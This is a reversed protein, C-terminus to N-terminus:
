ATQAETFGEALGISMLGANNVVADIRSTEKLISSVGRQVSAEDQVDMSVVRIALRQEQAFRLLDDAANRNRGNRERMTAYVTHGVRALTEATLRGIGSSTGTIMVVAMSDRRAKEPGPLIDCTEVRHRRRGARVASLRCALVRAPVAPRVPHLPSDSDAWFSPPLIATYPPASCDILRRTRSITSHDPTREDLGIQLFQRFGLSHAARWAIGRESDIGEFYGILLARFYAGPTLSPRGNKHAYFRACENEAFEDFKEQDLLENLRKYFPHGPATALEAHTVWLQEQRQRHRRTGMSM